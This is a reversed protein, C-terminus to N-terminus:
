INHPILTHMIAYSQHPHSPPTFSHYPIDAVSFAEWELLWLHFINTFNLTGCYANFVGANNLRYYFYQPRPTHMIAHSHHSLPTFCHLFCRCCQLSKGNQYSCIIFTRSILPVVILMSSALLTSDTIYIVLGQLYMKM